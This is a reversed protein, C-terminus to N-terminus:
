CTRCYILNGAHQITFTIPAIEEMKKTYDNYINDRKLHYHRHTILYYIIETHPSGKQLAVSIKELKDISTNLYPIFLMTIDHNCPMYVQLMESLFMLCNKKPSNNDFYATCEQVVSFAKIVVSTIPFDQLFDKLFTPLDHFNRHDICQQVKTM